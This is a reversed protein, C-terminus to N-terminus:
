GLWCLVFMTKLIILMKSWPQTILRIATGRRGFLTNGVGINNNLCAQKQREIEALVDDNDDGGTGGQNDDGTNGSNGSGSVGSYDTAPVRVSSKDVVAAGAGANAMDSIQNTSATARPASMVMQSTMSRRSQGASTVAMAPVTILCIAVWSILKKM